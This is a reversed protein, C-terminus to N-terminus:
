AHRNPAPAKSSKRRERGYQYSARDARNDAKTAIEDECSAPTVPVTPGLSPGNLMLSPCLTCFIHSSNTSSTRGGDSHSSLVMRSRRHTVMSSAGASSLGSTVFPHTKNGQTDRSKKITSKKNNHVRPDGGSGRTHRQRVRSGVRPALREM